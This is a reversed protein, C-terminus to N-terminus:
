VAALALTAALASLVTAPIRMALIEKPPPLFHSM